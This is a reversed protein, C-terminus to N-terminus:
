LCPYSARAVSSLRPKAFAVISQEHLPAPVADTGNKFFM